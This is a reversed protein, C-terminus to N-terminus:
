PTGDGENSTKTSTRPEFEQCWRRVSEHSVEIGTMMGIKLAIRAFGTGGRRLRKLLTDLTDLGSESEIQIREDILRYKDGRGQPANRKRRRTETM